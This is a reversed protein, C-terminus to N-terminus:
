IAKDNNWELIQQVRGDAEKTGWAKEYDIRQRSESIGKRQVEWDDGTFVFIIYFVIAVTKVPM